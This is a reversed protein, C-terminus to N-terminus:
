VAETQRGNRGTDLMIFVPVAVLIMLSASLIWAGRLTYADSLWGVFGLAASMAISELTFFMSLITAREAALIADNLYAARLVEELAMAGVHILFFALALAFHQTAAAAIISLGNLLTTVVLAKGRSKLRSSFKPAVWGGLMGMIGIVIWLYGTIIRRSEGQFFLQWQNAPGAMMLVLPLFSLCMAIFNPQSRAAQWGNCLTAWTSPSSAVHAHRERAPPEAVWFTILVGTFLLCLAALLFPLGLYLQGIVEAGLFGGLLSLAKAAVGSTSFLSASRYDPDIARINELAWAELTGSKFSEGIATLGASLLLVAQNPSWFLLILGISRVITAMQLAFKKGYTDALVGTPLETLFNVIWFVMLFTNIQLFSYGHRKLFLATTAGFLALSFAFLTSIVYYKREFQQIMLM